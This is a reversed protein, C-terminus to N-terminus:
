NSCFVYSFMVICCCILGPFLLFVNPSFSTHTQLDSPFEWIAHGFSPSDGKFSETLHDFLSFSLFCTVIFDIM